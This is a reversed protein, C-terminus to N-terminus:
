INKKTRGKGFTEQLSPPTSLPYHFLVSPPSTSCRYQQIKSYIHIFKLFLKKEVDILKILIDEWLYSYPGMDQIIRPETLNVVGIM